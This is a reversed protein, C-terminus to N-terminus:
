INWGGNQTILVRTKTRRIVPRRYYTSGPGNSGVPMTFQDILECDEISTDHIVTYDTWNEDTQRRSMNLDGETIWDM